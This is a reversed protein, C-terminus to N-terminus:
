SRRGYLGSKPVERNPKQACRYHHECCDPGDSTCIAPTHAVIELAEIVEETEVIDLTPVEGKLLKNSAKM